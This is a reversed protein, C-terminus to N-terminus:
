ERVHLYCKQNLQVRVQTVSTMIKQEPRDDGIAIEDDRLKWIAASPEPNMRLVCSVILNDGLQYHQNAQCAGQM